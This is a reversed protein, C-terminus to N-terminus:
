AGNLAYINTLPVSVNSKNSVFIFSCENQRMVERCSHGENQGVTALSFMIEIFM